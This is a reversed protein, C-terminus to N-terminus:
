KSGFPPQRRASKRDGRTASLVQSGTGRDRSLVKSPKYVVRSALVKFNIPMAPVGRRRPKAPTAEELSAPAEESSKVSTVSAAEEAHLGGMMGAILMLRLITKM